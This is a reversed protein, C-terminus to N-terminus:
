FTNEARYRGFTLFIPNSVKDYFHKLLTTKGVQRPGFVAIIESAELYQEIKDELDREYYM